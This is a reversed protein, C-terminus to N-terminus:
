KEDRMEGRQLVRGARRAERGYRYSTKPSFVVAKKGRGRTHCWYLDLRISQNIKFNNKLRKGHLCIDKDPTQITLQLQLKTDSTLFHRKKFFDTHWCCRVPGWVSATRRPPNKFSTDWIESINSNQRAVNLRRKNKRALRNYPEGENLNDDLQLLSISLGKGSRKKKVNFFITCLIWVVKNFFAFM